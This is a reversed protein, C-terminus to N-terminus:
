QASAPSTIVLVHCPSCGSGSQSGAWASGSQKPTIKRSAISLIGDLLDALQQRKDVPWAM